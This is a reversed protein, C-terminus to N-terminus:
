PERWAGEVRDVIGCRYCQSRVVITDGLRARVRVWDHGDRLCMARDYLRWAFTAKPM